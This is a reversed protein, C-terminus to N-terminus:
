NTLSCLKNRIFLANNEFLLGTIGLKDAEAVNEKQNDVIICENPTLSYRNLFYTYIAPDPKALKIEASIIIDGPNIYTLLQKYTDTKKFYQYSDLDWNSLIYNTIQKNKAMLKLMDFAVPNIVMLNALFVPDFLKQFEKELITIDVGNKILESRQKEVESNVIELAQKSSIKGTIWEYIIYPAKIGSPLRMNNAMSNKIQDSAFAMLIKLAAEETLSIIPKKDNHSYLLLSAIKKEKVNLKNLDPVILTGGLDWIISKYM